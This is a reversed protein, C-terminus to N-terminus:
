AGAQNGFIMLLSEPMLDKSGALKAIRQILLVEPFLFCAPPHIGPLSRNAPLPIFVDYLQVLAPSGM